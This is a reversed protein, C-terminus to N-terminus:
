EDTGSVSVKVPSAPDNDSDADPTDEQTYDDADEEEPTSTRPRDTHVLEPPTFAAYTLKETSPFSPTHSFKRSRSVERIFIKITSNALNNRQIDLSKVWAQYLNGSKILPRLRCTLDDPLRGLYENGSNLISICHERAQLKVEDGPQLHVLINADGLRILNVSKTTGPEELFASAYDITPQNEKKRDVKYTKLNELGKLAISDYKDIRLVKKYTAEAKTKLGSYLLAKALRNLADLDQPNLRLIQQNLKIALKWDRTLSAQIAQQNLDM